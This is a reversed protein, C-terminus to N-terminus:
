LGSPVRVSGTARLTGLVHSRGAQYGTVVEFRRDAADLVTVVLEDGAQLSTKGSLRWTVSADDLPGGQGDAPGNWEPGPKGAAPEATQCGPATFAAGEGHAIIQGGRRVEIADIVTGRGLPESCVGPPRQVSVFRMAPPPPDTTLVYRAAHVVGDLKFRYEVSSRNEDVTLTEETAGPVLSTPPPAASTGVPPGIRTPEPCPGPAGCSLVGAVVLLPGLKSV